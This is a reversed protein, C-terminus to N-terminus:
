LSLVDKMDAEIKNTYINSLLKIHKKQENAAFEVDYQYAPIWYSLEESSLPQHIISVATITANAVTNSLGIYVTQSPEWTGFVHKIVLNTSNAFGVTGIVGNAQKLIDNETFTGFTGTLSVIKNTEVVEDLVKREYNLITNGYGTIPSWYQKQTSALADYAATSIISDDNEYNVTFYAVQAQANAMSGYKEKIYDDFVSGSLPWEHYPDTINNSLYVIWDYSADGYYHQALQDPREGEEITYPYFVGLNKVVSEDFRVKAIINTAATNSYFLSPFYNFFGSM